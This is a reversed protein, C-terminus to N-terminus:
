IIFVKHSREEILWIERSWGRSLDQGTHGAPGRFTAPQICVRPSTADQTLYCSLISPTNCATEHHILTYKIWFLIHSKMTKNASTDVPSALSTNVLINIFVSSKEPEWPPSYSSPQRSAHQATYDLLLKGVNWLHNSSGDDPRYNEHRLDESKHRFCCAGRFSQHVEVLSCTAVDWFLAMEFGKFDV